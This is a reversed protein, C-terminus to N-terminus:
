REESRGSALLAIDMGDKLADELAQIMVAATPQDNIGPSGYIKYNGLFANPAVGSISGVPANVPGGAAIMAIATGHGFHDSPTTDDPLSHQADVGVSPLQSVYSRAVIVKNNTFNTDGAPFGAPPHLSPNQMAPHNQDIGSDIIAIRVGAGANGAGGVQSWAASAQVLDLARNLHRRLPPLLVAMRTGPLTQLEAARSMPVRVFVANVLTSATGTVPISRKALETKLDRQRAQIENLSTHIRSSRSEAISPADLILAFDSTRVDTPGAVGAVAALLMILVSRKPYAAIM